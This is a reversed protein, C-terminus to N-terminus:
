YTVEVKYVYRASENNYADYAVLLFEYIGVATIGPIRYQFDFVETLNKSGVWRLEYARFPDLNTQTDIQRYQLMLRGCDEEGLPVNDEVLGRFRISDGKAVTLDFTQPADVHLTPALSDKRNFVELDYLTNSLSSNIRADLVDIELQYYGGIVDTPVVIADKVEFSEGELGWLYEDQWTEPKIWNGPCDPHVGVMARAMFLDENDQLLLSLFLSDGSGIRIVNESEQGCVQGVVPAPEFTAKTLTPPIDDSQRCSFFALLVCVYLGFSWIPDHSPLPTNHKM